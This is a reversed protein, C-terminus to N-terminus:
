FGGDFLIPPRIQFCCFGMLLIVTSCCRGIILALAQADSRARASSTGYAAVGLRPPRRWINSMESLKLAESNFLEINFPWAAIMTSMNHDVYLHSIEPIEFDAM